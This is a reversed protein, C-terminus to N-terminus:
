EYRIEIQDGDKMSYNEFAANEKGNVTMRVKKTDTNKKDFIQNKSFPKGWTKFFNGLKTEEKTVVGAMEMHLIGQGADDHTHIPMHIAGIGVEEPIEQKEGDIFVTLTPHWHFGNEAIVDETAGSKVQTQSPSKSLFFVAGVVILITLLGSGIIIKKDM